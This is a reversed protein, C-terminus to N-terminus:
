DVQPPLMARWYTERPLTRTVYSQVRAFRLRESAAEADGRTLYLGFLASGSGSLSAYLAAEPTGQGLLIRKIECLSPQQAFIVQEFDNEIWSLIGTRVLASEQPGALDDRDSVVGSSGTKSEGQPIAGAFASAYARSLENLKDTSAEPTLGNRLCLADWDRFAQPTSVGIAPVAAVCWTPELDPLPFVDQGRDLGLVTGGILFLPVDSGVQAAIELRRAPWLHPQSLPFAGNTVGLEAELGVLAAVANASGAGLGGQVPLQKEIHIEVDVAAGLAKLALSIMKWATNRESTPVRSDNSTIRLVTGASPKATVTVVDHLELTQYVTVLAHFGDARPAGIGLGLNIKAHSRVKTPM